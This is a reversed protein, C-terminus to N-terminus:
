PVKVDKSALFIFQSEQKLAFVCVAMWIYFIVLNPKISRVSLTSIKPHRLQVKNDFTQLM